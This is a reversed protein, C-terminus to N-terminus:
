RLKSEYVTMTSSILFSKDLIGQCGGGGKGLACENLKPLTHLPSDQLQCISILQLGSADSKSM